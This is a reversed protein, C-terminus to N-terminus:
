LWCALGWEASAIIFGVISAAGFAYGLWFEHYHQSPRM